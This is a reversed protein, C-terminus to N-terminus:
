PTPRTWLWPAYNRWVSPTSLHSYDPGAGATVSGTAGWGAALMPRVTKLSPLLRAKDHSARRHVMAWHTHRTLLLYRLALETAEADAESLSQCATTAAMRALAGSTQVQTQLDLALEHRGTGDQWSFRACDQPQGDLRLVFKVTDGAWPPQDTTAASWVLQGASLSWNCLLAGTRDSRLRAFLRQVAPQM